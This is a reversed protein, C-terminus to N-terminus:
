PLLSVSESIGITPDPLGSLLRGDGVPFAGNGAALAGIPRRSFFPLTEQPKEGLLCRFSRAGVLGDGFLDTKVSEEIEEQTPFLPSQAFILFFFFSVRPFRLFLSFRTNIIPPFPPTSTSSLSLSKRFCSERLLHFNILLLFICIICLTGDEPRRLGVTYKCVDQDSAGDQGDM